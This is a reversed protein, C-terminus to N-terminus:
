LKMAESLMALAREESLRGLRSKAALTKILAEAIPGLPGGSQVAEVVPSAVAAPAAVAQAAPAAAPRTATVAASLSPGATAEDEDGALALESQAAAAPRSAAPAAPAPELVHTLTAPDGMPQLVASSLSLGGTESSRVTGMSTPAHDATRRAPAPRPAPRPTPQTKQRLRMLVEEPVDQETHPLNFWNEPLGLKESFFRADNEDFHKNGHLRHSINAPSMETLRGLESKSGPEKTLLALNHRRIERLRVEDDTGASQHAVAPAPAPAAAAPASPKAKGKAATKKTM